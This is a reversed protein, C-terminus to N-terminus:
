RRGKRAGAVIAPHLAASIRLSECEPDVLVYVTGELSDAFIWPNRDHFSPFTKAAQAVVDLVDKCLAVAATESRTNTGRILFHALLSKPAPLSQQKASLPISKYM